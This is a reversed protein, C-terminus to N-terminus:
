KSKADIVAELVGQLQDLPMKQIVHTAAIEAKIEKPLCKGVLALFPGPNDIAKEALYARGGADELAGLIMARVDSTVKNPIGKRSGGKPQPRSKKPVTGIVDSM